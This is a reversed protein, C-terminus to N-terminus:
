AALSSDVTFSEDKKPEVDKIILYQGTRIKLEVFQTNDVKVKM